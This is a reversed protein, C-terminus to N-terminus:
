AITAMAVAAPPTGAAMIAQTRVTTLKALGM